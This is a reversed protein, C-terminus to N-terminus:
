AAATVDLIQLGRLGFLSEPLEFGLGVKKIQGQRYDIDEVLQRGYRDGMSPNSHGMWYDILIQRVESRQLVAERFRRFINFLTGAQDRGMQKLILDLNNRGISRPDLMTGNVSQFLFGCKRDGIFNRLILAADPHLDVDRCGSETKLHEKVRNARKERQQRVRVISCDPEIHKDIEIAVAESVRLGTAVCFFYIMRYQGEANSLLTTMEKATFTPRRQKRPNVRPLSIAALNWSRHHVPNFNGDLASAIVKRLVRFYEVITKESFRREGDKGRESKMKAILTKAQPNDISALPMDGILQNLYTVANRYSNITNPDIPERKKAHVIHGDVMEEIWWAAQGRFTGAPALRERVKEIDLVGAENMENRLKLMADIEDRCYGLAVRIEKQGHKGPVDIRYRGYSRERPNWPDGKKKGKQYVYGRQRLTPKGTEVDQVIRRSM